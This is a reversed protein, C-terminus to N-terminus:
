RKIFELESEGNVKTINIVNDFKEKLSEDHTIVLIKYRDELSKIVSVFLTEVGYRDLPSNVEDLLLFELSAGGYRSSIDSLAVRLALSIRFKEGGSLSKFNQLHGDKRVKLDLTEIISVGDAGMRQTELVIVAPENCISSLINNATKELDEIVFDLLITQIGGKGFMKGLKEFLTARKLKKSIKKKDKRMKSERQSLVSHRESLRGIKKDHESVLSKTDDRDKKLSKLKLRLSQFDDNKISELVETQNKIKFIVQSLRDESTALIGSDRDLSDKVLKLKYEISDKESILKTIVKNEQETALLQELKSEASLAKDNFERFQENYFEQKQEHDRKLTQYLEDSIAQKCTYCEGVLVDRESLNKIFEQASAKKSKFHVLETRLGEVKGAEIEVVVRGQLKDSVKNRDETLANADSTYSDVSKRTAKVKEEVSEKESSLKEILGVVKDYADTDLSKKMADYKVDLSSIEETISKLNGKLSASSKEASSIQLSVESLREVVDDYDSMAGRLVKCELKIEKVRSRAAKEYDDWRSIDVISKLIEKKKSPESEAFESIDNQRFYVSNIFTKYDLKITEEIKTNTDGSTSCSINQWEGEKNMLFFEVSSTSSMRNRVRTVMYKTGNHMFELDVSCTKEGWRIIDDMMAARSKNFLCWLVAEFIASKGSGNSKDYDGETNGILLASNFESFDIESDKHSFFNQMKLRSPIM